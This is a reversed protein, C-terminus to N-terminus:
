ALLKNSVGGLSMFEDHAIGLKQYYTQKRMGSNKYGGQRYHLNIITRSEGSLLEMARTANIMDDESYIWNHSDDFINNDKNNQKVQRGLPSSNSVGCLIRIQVADNQRRIWEIITMEVDSRKKKSKAFSSKIINSLKYMEIRSLTM